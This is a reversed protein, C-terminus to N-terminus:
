SEKAQQPLFLLKKGVGVRKNQKGPSGDFQGGSINAVCLPM